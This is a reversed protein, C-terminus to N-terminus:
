GVWLEEGHSETISSRLAFIKWESLLYHTDALHCAGQKLSLM